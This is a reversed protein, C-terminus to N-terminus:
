WRVRRGFLVAIARIPILLISLIAAGVILLPVGGALIILLLVVGGLTLGVTVGTVLMAFAVAIAAVALGLIAALVRLVPNRIEMGGFGVHWHNGVLGGEPHQVPSHDVPAPDGEGTFGTEDVRADPDIQLSEGYEVRAIRCGPGIKVRQGRVIKATTAELHVDDGEISEVTLSGTRCLWGFCLFGRGFGDGSLITIREGGIERVRCQGGLAMEVTDASLLGGVVIAGSSRVHEGELDGGIRASGSMDANVVKANGGIKVSGSAALRDAKVSGGVHASGSCKFERAEVDRAIDFSGSGKLSDAKVSGDFHAAGSVRVSGAEVDGTVKGSGSVAIEEYVGEGATGSGSIRISGRGDAEM